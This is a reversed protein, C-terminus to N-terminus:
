HFVILEDVYEKTFYNATASYSNAIVTTNEKSHSAYAKKRLSNDNIATSSQELRRTSDLTNPHNRSSEQLMQRSSTDHQKKAPKPDERPVLKRASSLPPQNMGVAINQSIRTRVHSQKYVIQHVISDCEPCFRM